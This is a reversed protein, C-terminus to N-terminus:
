GGGFGKSPLLIINISAVTVMLQASDTRGPVM